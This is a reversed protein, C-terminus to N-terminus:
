AKSDQASQASVDTVSALRQTCSCRYAEVVGSIEPLVNRQREKSFDELILLGPCDSTTESSKIAQSASPAGGAAWVRSRIVTHVRVVSRLATGFLRKVRSVVVRPTSNSLRSKVNSITTSLAPNAKSNFTSPYRYPLTSASKWQPHHTGNCSTQIAIVARKGATLEQGARFTAAM